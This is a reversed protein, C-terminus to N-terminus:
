CVTIRTSFYKGAFRYNCEFQLMKRDQDPRTALQVSCALMTTHMSATYPPRACFSAHLDTCRYMQIDTLVTDKICKQMLLSVRFECYNMERLFRLHQVRKEESSSQLYRGTSRIQYADQTYVHFPSGNGNVLKWTRQSTAACLERRTSYSVM